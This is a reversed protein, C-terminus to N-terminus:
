TAKPEGEAPPPTAPKEEPTEEAEDKKTAKEVAEMLQKEKSKGKRIQAAAAKNYGRFQAWPSNSVTKAYEAKNFPMPQSVLPLDDLDEM